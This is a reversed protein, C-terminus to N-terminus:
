PIEEGSRNQMLIRTRTSIGGRQTQQEWWSGGLLRKCERIEVLVPGEEEAKLGLPPSSHGSSSTEPAEVKRMPERM